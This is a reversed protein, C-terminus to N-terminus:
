VTKLSIEVSAGGNVPTLFTVNANIKKSLEDVLRLGLGHTTTANEKNSLAQQYQQQTFSQGENNIYLSITNQNKKTFIEIIGNEPSAKIANQLLNRVITQLFYTDTEASDVDNIKQQYSISKADSNLQLLQKCTEVVPILEVTQLSTKFENMQTKSWLLLDEMTELLSGTASQIKNSLEAKQNEDLAKPNLQQLKLFQYVQSIPSRLDHSIISFLKAKTQNAEELAINLKSLTKNKENLLDATKKKNRYIIILLLLSLVALAIGSLLWIRQKSALQLETNKATIQQQKSENQFVAEMEALNLAIKSQTLSDTISSYKAFYAAADSSGSLMEVETLSRLVDAYQEKNYNIAGQEAIKYYSAAKIYDKISKYYDGYSLNVSSTMIEKNDLKSQVDAKDIYFKARELAGNKLYLSALELNSSVAESWKGPSKAIVEHLLNYYKTATQLSNLQVYSRIFKGYATIDLVASLGLYPEIIELYQIAKDPQKLYLYVEAVLANKAAYDTKLKVTKTTDAIAKGLSVSKLFNELAIGYYFKQQQNYLGLNYYIDSKNKLTDNTELIQKLKQASEDAKIQQGMYHYVSVLNGLPKTSKEIMNAKVAEAYAQELHESSSKFDQKYYYGSGIAQHFIFNYNHDKEGAITLGEKGTKILLDFSESKGTFAALIAECAAKKEELLQQKSQSFCYSSTLLFFFIM